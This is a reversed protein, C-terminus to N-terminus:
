KRRRLKRAVYLAGVGTALLSMSAPEPVAITAFAASTGALITIAALIAISLVRDM